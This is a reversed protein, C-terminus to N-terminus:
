IFIECLNNIASGAKKITEKVSPISAPQMAELPTSMFQETIKSMADSFDPTSGKDASILWDFVLSGEPLFRQTVLEYAAQSCYTNNINRKLTSEFNPNVPAVKELNKLTQYIFFDDNQCLVDAMISMLNLYHVKLTSILPKDELNIM